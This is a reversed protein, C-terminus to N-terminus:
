LFSTQHHRIQGTLNSHDTPFQTLNKIRHVREAHPNM